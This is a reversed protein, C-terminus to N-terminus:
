KNFIKDLERRIIYSNTELITHVDQSQRLLAVIIISKDSYPVYVIYHERVPYIGLGPISPMCFSDTMSVHHLAIWNAGNHLDSFYQKTLDRGWRKISWQRAGRFDNEASETLKYHVNTRRAM